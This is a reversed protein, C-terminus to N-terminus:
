NNLYAMNGEEMDSIAEEMPDAEGEVATEEAPELAPAQRPLRKDICDAVYSALM